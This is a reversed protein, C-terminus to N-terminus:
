NWIIPIAFSEFVRDASVIPMAELKAQAILIHDFPDRHQSEFSGAMEAHAISVPLESFRSRAIHHDIGPLLRAAEPLKGNRYKTTIEWVSAASVFIENNQDSIVQVATKSLRSDGTWWWLLAHTDLLLRM